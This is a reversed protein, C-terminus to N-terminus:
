GTVKVLSAFYTSGEIHDVYVEVTAGVVLTGIIDAFEVCVERVRERCM